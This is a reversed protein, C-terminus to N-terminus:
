ELSSPCSYKFHRGNAEILIYQEVTGDVIVQPWPLRGRGHQHHVAKRAIRIEPVAPDRHDGLAAADIAGIKQSAALGLNGGLAVGVSRFLDAGLDQGHEIGMRQRLYVPDAFGRAPDDPQQEGRCM